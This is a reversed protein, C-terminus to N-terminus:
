TLTHVTLVSVMLKNVRHARFAIRDERLMAMADNQAPHTGLMQLTPLSVLDAYLVSRTALSCAM